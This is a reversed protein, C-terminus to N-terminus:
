LFKVRELEIEDKHRFGAGVFYLCTIYTEWLIHKYKTPAPNKQPKEEKGSKSIQSCMLCSRFCPVSCAFEKNEYRLELLPM